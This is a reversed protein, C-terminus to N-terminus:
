ASHRKERWTLSVLKKGEESYGDIEPKRDLLFFIRNASLKAKAYNPAFSGAQGIGLAGFIVASFVIFSDMFNDHLISDPDQTLQWAGVGFTVVYGFFLFGQSFGYTLGYVSSNCLARRCFYYLLANDIGYLLCVHVHVCLLCSCFLHLALTLM